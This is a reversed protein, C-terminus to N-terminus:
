LEGDYVARVVARADSDRRSARLAARVDTRDTVWIAVADRVRGDAIPPTFNDSESWDQSAWGLLTVVADLSDTSAGVPFGVDAGQMVVIGNVIVRYEPYSHLRYSWGGPCEKRVVDGIEVVVSVRPHDYITFARRTPTTGNTFVPPFTNGALPLTM